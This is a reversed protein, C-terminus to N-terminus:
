EGRSDANAREPPAPDLPVVLVSPQAREIVEAAVSRSTLEDFWGRHRTGVVVWDPDLHGAHSLIARASGPEDVMVTNAEVPLQAAAGILRDWRATRLLAADDLGGRSPGVTFPGTVMAGPFIGAVAMAAPDCNHFAVLGAGLQRGIEAATQLVPHGATRLDTAALITPTGRHERAVLVPRQAARALTTVARGLRPPHSSVIILSADVNAAYAAVQEVFEGQVITLQEIADMDGITARLWSRTNRSARRTSEFARAAIVGYRAPLLTQIRPASPMVRLVHLEGRLTRALESARHLIATPRRHDFLALVLRPGAGRRARPPLTARDPRPVRTVPRPFRAPSSPEDGGFIRPNLIPRTM